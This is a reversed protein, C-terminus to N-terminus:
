PALVRFRFPLTVAVGDAGRVEVALEVVADPADGPVALVGSWRGPDGEALVVAGFPGDATVAAAELYVVVELRLESGARTPGDGSAEVLPADLEIVLQDRRETADDGSRAVVVFPLVGASATAPVPVRGIWGAGDRELAVRDAGVEIAM